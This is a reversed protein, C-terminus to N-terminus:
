ASGVAIKVKSKSNPVQLCCDTNWQSASHSWTSLLLCFSVSAYFFTSIPTQLLYLLSPSLIGQDRINKEIGAKTDETAGNCM